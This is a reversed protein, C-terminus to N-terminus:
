KYIEKRHGIEILIIILKKDKIEAIIRYNGVRYRWLGQLTGNLPKGNKRPFKTDILNNILWKKILKAQYKDLKKLDKKAKETFEVIYKEEM